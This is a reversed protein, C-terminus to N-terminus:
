DISEVSAINATTWENKTQKKAWDRSYLGDVRKFDNRIDEHGGPVRSTQGGHVM